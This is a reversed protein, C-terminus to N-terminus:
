EYAPPVSKAKPHMASLEFVGVVDGLSDSVASLVTLTKSEHYVPPVTIEGTAMCAAMEEPTEITSGGFRYYRHINGNHMLLSVHGEKGETKLWLAASCPFDVLRELRMLLKKTRLFRAHEVDYYDGAMSRHQPDPNAVYHKARDTATQAAEEGDIMVGAVRATATMAKLMKRVKPDQKAMM